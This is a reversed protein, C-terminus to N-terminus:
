PELCSGLLKQSIQAQTDRQGVGLLLCVGPQGATDPGWPASLPTPSSIVWTPSLWHPLPSHAASLWMSLLSSAANVSGLVARLVKGRVARKIMVVVSFLM